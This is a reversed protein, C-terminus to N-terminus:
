AGPARTSRRSSIPTGAAILVPMLTVDLNGGCLIVGVRKGQQRESEVMLGATAIAGAPEPLNHTTPMTAGVIEVAEELQGQTFPTM